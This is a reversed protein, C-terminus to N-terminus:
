KFLIEIILAILSLLYALYVSRQSAKGELVARFKQLEQIEKDVINFEIKTAYTTKLDRIEERLHNMGDLRKEMIERALILAKEHAELKVLFFEKLSVRLSEGDKYDFENNHQSM